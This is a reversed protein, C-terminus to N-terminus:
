PSIFRDDTGKSELQFTLLFLLCCIAHALHSRGTEPDLNEGRAFAFVHRLTAGLYRSWDTGKAWNHASYKAAGLTLVAGVEELAAFPLLDLRTKSQDHKVFTPDNM